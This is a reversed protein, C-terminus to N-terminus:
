ANLLINGANRQLFDTLSESFGHPDVVHIITPLHSKIKMRLSASSMSNFHCRLASIKGYISGGEHM